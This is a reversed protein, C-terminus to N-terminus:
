LKGGVVGKDNTQEWYEKLKTANSDWLACVMVDCFYVSVRKIKEYDDFEANDFAINVQDSNSGCRIHMMHLRGNKKFEIM